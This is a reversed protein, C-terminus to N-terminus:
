PRKAAQPKAPSSNSPAASSEAPKNADKKPQLLQDINRASLPIGLRVDFSRQYLKNDAIPGSKGPSVKFPRERLQSVIENEVHPESTLGSINISAEDVANGVSVAIRNVIAEDPLPFRDSIEYLEDLWNVDGRKWRDVTEAKGITLDREDSRESLQSLEAQLRGIEAKRMGILFFAFVFLVLVAFGAIAAIRYKRRSDKVPEPRRHPNVFDILFETPQARLGFSGLVPAFSGDDDSIAKIASSGFSAFEEVSRAEAPLKLQVEIARALNQHAIRSGLILVRSISGGSPQNSAAAVTRRVELIFAPLQENPEHPLRVTRTLVIRNRYTVTLDAEGDFRNILLVHKPSALEGRLLNVLAFPRPLLNRVRLKALELLSQIKKLEAANLTAALVHIPGGDKGNILRVFDLPQGDAMGSFHNKAQYRVMEPLEDDPANPLELVRFEIQGRGIVVSADARTMGLRAIYKSINEAVASVDAGEGIPFTALEEVRTREGVDATALRVIDQDWHIAISRTM